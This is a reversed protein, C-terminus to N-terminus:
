LSKRKCEKSLFPPSLSTSLDLFLDAGHCNFTCLLRNQYSNSFYGFKKQKSIFSFHWLLRLLSTDFFCNEEQEGFSHAETPLDIGLFRM